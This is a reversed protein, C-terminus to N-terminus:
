ITQKIELALHKALEVPVANGVMKYGDKINTYKFIFEDPFTQIRACERVTLRRYLHEKGPMFIRKDQTIFKMPPAQPHLPISEATAPITFSPQTWTRVRNRSMFNQSFGGTMYEHNPAFLDKPNNPRNVPLAPKALRLTYIADKLVPKQNAPAPFEFKKHLESKIGVIIIRQRDQPVNYDHANVLKYSVAYRADEFQNIFHDFANRNKPLLMGAVNECLFFTPKKDKLVRIYELFLKGRQDSIGRGRGAESWSQCPPGGIIGDCDPIENSQIDSINRKDLKTKPFNYEFTPHITRDYENAWIVNYGAKTFGLDLAGAGAFLSIVNM